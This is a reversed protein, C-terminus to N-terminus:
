SSTAKAILEEVESAAGYDKATKTGGASFTTFEISVGCGGERECVRAENIHVTPHHDLADCLKAVSQVLKSAATFSGLTVDRRLATGTFRWAAPLDGVATVRREAAAVVRRVLTAACVPGCGHPTPTVIRGEVSPDVDALLSQTAADWTTGVNVVVTDSGVDGPQVLGPCGAAAFVYDAEALTRHRLDEPTSSHCVTVTADRDALARALPAGLHQSRGLVTVAKGVFNLAVDDALFAADDGPATTLEAAVLTRLTAEVMLPNMMSDVDQTLGAVTPQDWAADQEVLVADARTEAARAAAAVTEVSADDSLAVIEVDIGDGKLLAEKAWWSEVAGTNENTALAKARELGGAGGEPDGVRVIAVRPKAGTMKHVRRARLRADARLARAVVHGVPVTSAKPYGGVAIVEVPAKGIAEQFASDVRAWRQADISGCISAQRLALPACRAAVAGHFLADRGPAGFFAADDDTELLAIEEGARIPDAAAERWGDFLGDLFAGLADRDADKTSFLAQSYGLDLSGIGGPATACLPHIAMADTADFWSLPETTHYCQIGDVEGSLLLAKRHAEDVRSVEQVDVGNLCAEMLKLSDVHAAVKKLPAGRKMALALPSRDFMAGFAVLPADAALSNQECVGVVVADKMERQRQVVAAGEGGPTCPAVLQVDLGRSAFLGRALGTALGAFQGGLHYDLQLVVQKM